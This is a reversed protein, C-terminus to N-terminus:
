RVTAQGYVAALRKEMTDWSYREDYAKRGNAGLALRLRIDDRLQLLAAKIAEADGYPVILGCGTEAVIRSAGLGENVIIPKGCMMAEYLKNPSSYRSKALAPDEFRFLVDAEMTTHLVDEYTPMFGVFRVKEPDLPFDVQLKGPDDPGAIVM